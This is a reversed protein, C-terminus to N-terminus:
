STLTPTNHIPCTRRPTGGDARRTRRGGPPTRPPDQASLPRGTPVGQGEMPAWDRRGGRIHQPAPTVLLELVFYAIAGLNSDGGGAGSGGADHRMRLGRRAALVEIA